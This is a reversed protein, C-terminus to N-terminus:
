IVFDAGVRRVEIATEGLSEGKLTTHYVFRGEKLLAADFTPNSDAGGAPPCALAVMLLLPNLMREDGKLSLPM